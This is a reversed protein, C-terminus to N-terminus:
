LYCSGEGWARDALSSHGPRLHFSRRAKWVSPALSQSLTWYPPWELRKWWYMSFFSRCCRRYCWLQSWMLMQKAMLRSFIVTYGDCTWYHKKKKKADLVKEMQALHNCILKEWASRCYPSKVNRSKKKWYVSTLRREWLCALITISIGSVFCLCNILMNQCSCLNTPFPPLFCSSTLMVRCQCNGLFILADSIYDAYMLPWETGVTILPVYHICKCLPSPAIPSSPSPFFFFWFWQTKEAQTSYCRFLM